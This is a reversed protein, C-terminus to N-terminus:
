TPRCVWGNLEHVQGDAPSYAISGHLASAKL